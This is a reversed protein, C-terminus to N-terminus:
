KENKKGFIIEDWTPVSSRKPKIKREPTETKTINPKNIINIETTPKNELLNIKNTIVEIEHTDLSISNPLKLEEPITKPTKEELNAIKLYNQKKNESTVTKTNASLKAPTKKSNELDLIEDLIDNKTYENPQQGRRKSLLDLIENTQKNTQEINFVQETEIPKEQSTKEILQKATNNHTTITNDKQDYLWQATKEEITQAKENAIKFKAQVIWRGDQVRWADWELNDKTVDCAVLKHIVVEGLSFPHEKFISRYGQPLIDESNKLHIKKAKEVIHFREALVPGEYRKIQELSIEHQKAIEEPTEGARIKAQIIRPSIRENNVLEKQPQTKQTHNKRSAVRLAEDIRLRYIQNEPGNLLLHEGDDHVGVLRLDQM